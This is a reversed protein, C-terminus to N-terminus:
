LLKYDKNRSIKLKGNEDTKARVHAVVGKYRKKAREAPDTIAADNKPDRLPIDLVVNTENAFSYVGAVDANLVSSSIQM